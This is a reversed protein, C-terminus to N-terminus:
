LISVLCKEKDTKQKIRQPFEDRSAAGVSDPPWYLLSWSKHEIIIRQFDSAKQEMLATLRFLSEFIVSKRGKLQDIPCAAGPSSLIKELWTRQSPDALVDDKWGPLPSLASQV